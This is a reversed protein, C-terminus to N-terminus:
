RRRSSRWTRLRISSSSLSFMSASFWSCLSRPRSLAIHQSALSSRQQQRGREQREREQARVKEINNVDGLEYMTLIHFRVMIEYCKIAVPDKQQQCVFDQRLARMRDSIFRYIVLFSPLPPPDPSDTRDMIQSVLYSMTQQLIHPPRVDKANLTQAAAARKYKKVAKQPDVLPVDGHEKSGTGPIIEFYSLDRSEQRAQQEEVPCMLHCQGVIARFNSATFLDGDEEEGGGGGGGGMAAAMM